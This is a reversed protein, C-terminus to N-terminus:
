ITRFQFQRILLPTALSSPPSTLVRVEKSFKKLKSPNKLFFFAKFGRFNEEWLFFKVGRSFNRAVGSSILITYFVM